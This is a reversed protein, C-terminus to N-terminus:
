DQRFRKWRREIGRTRAALEAHGDTFEIVQSLSFGPNTPYFHEFVASVLAFDEETDVELHLDPRRLWAPAELNQVRYREPQQYIHMGVHERLPTTGARREADILVAAAYVAVEAGPPYTTKLANTVYDYEGAHKLYYGIIADVLLADPMPNDGQFEVHVDVDHAILAGVVRGLVDDESGRFCPCGLRDALDHIADDQPQDTTAIIVRDILRSQRIREIQLELMPKGVIAKLVKGSLRSSARRAQITADVKKL